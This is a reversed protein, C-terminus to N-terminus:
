VKAMGVLGLFETRVAAEKFTGRLASTVMSSQHKQVGRACMCHHKAQIIVGVGAAKLHTEIADAIQTTLREQVQLRRAYVDVVRAIKSLGVVRGTKKNPLYAVHATGFFPLMHHECNSYFEINPVVIMQDYKGVDFDTGLIDAPNQGYGRTQEVWAKKVREPTDILGERTPDEGMYDLLAIVARRAAQEGEITGPRYSQNYNEAIVQELACPGTHGLKRRCWWGVKVNKSLGCKEM